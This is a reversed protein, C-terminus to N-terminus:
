RDIVRLGILGAVGRIVVRAKTLSLAPIHTVITRLHPSYCRFGVQISNGALVNEHPHRAKIVCLRYM